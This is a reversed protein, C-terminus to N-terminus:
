SDTAQGDHFLSTGTQRSSGARCSGRSYCHLDGHLHHENGRERCGPHSGLPRSYWSRPHRILMWTAMSGPLKPFQCTLQYIPKCRSTRRDLRCQDNYHRAYISRSSYTCGVKVSRWLPSIVLCRMNNVVNGPIQRYYASGKLAIYFYAMLGIPPVVDHLKPISGNVM